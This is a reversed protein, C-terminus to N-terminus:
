CSGGRGRSATESHPTQNVPQKKHLPHLCLPPTRSRRHPFKEGQRRKLTMWWHPQLRFGLPFSFIGFVEGHCFASSFGAKGKRKLRSERRKRQALVCPARRLYRAQALVINMVDNEPLRLHCFYNRRIRQPPFLPFDMLASLRNVKKPPHPSFFSFPM